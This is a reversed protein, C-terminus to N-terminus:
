SRCLGDNPTMATNEMVSLESCLNLELLPWRNGEIGPLAWYWLDAGMRCGHRAIELSRNLFSKLFFCSLIIAKM